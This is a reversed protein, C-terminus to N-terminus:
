NVVIIIFVDVWDVCMSFCGNLVECYWFMVYIGRGNYNVVFDKYWMIFVIDVVCIKIVYLVDICSVCFVYGFCIGNLM